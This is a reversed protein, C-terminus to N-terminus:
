LNDGHNEPLGYPVTGEGNRARGGAGELKWGRIELRCSSAAKFM